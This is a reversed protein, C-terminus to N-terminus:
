KRLQSLAKVYKMLLGGTKLVREKMEKDVAATGEAFLKETNYFMISARLTVMGIMRLTPLMTQQLAQGGLSGSSTSCIVVPKHAYENTYGMDLLIKLEGPMARNYEPAVLIFGDAKKALTNWKKTKKKPDAWEPITRPDKLYDAVEVYKFQTNKHKAKLVKHIYKAAKDTHSGQRATGHVVLILPKKAPM